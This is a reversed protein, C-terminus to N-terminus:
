WVSGGVHYRYLGDSGYCYRRKGVCVCGASPVSRHAPRDRLRCRLASRALSRSRTRVSPMGSESLIRPNVFLIYSMSLFTVFGGRLEGFMSAHRKDFEFYRRLWRVASLYWFVIGSARDDEEEHGVDIERQEDRSALVARSEDDDGDSREDFGHRKYMAGSRLLHRPLCLLLSLLSLLSLVLSYAPILTFIM